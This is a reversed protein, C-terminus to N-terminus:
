LANNMRYSFFPPKQWMKKDSLKERQKIVKIGQWIRQIFRREEQFQDHSVVSSLGLLNLHHIKNRLQVYCQKLKASVHSSIVASEAMILIRVNDSWITLHSNTPAYALVLYQAIFEIDTIGGRTPKLILSRRIPIQWINICKQVCKFWM